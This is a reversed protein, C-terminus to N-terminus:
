YLVTNIQSPKLHQVINQKESQNWIHGATRHCLSHLFSNFREQTTSSQEEVAQCSNIRWLFEKVSTTLWKYSKHWLTSHVIYNMSIFWKIFTEPEKYNRWLSLHLRQAVIQSQGRIQELEELLVPINNRWKQLPLQHKNFIIGHTKIM